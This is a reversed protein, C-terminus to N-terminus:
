RITKGHLGTRKPKRIRQRPGYGLDGIVPQWREAQPGRPAPHGPETHCLHRRDEGVDIDELVRTLERTNGSIRGARRDIIRFGENNAELTSFNCRILVDGPETHIGIGAAEIPGRAMSIIESQPIGLLVGTGTHTGVPVGAYLPDVLAGRGDSILRDLNPTRAQELPTKGAFAEIGSDGLGDLILFLGKRKAIM